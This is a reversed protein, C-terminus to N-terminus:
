VILRPDCVCKGRFGPYIRGISGDECQCVSPGFVSTPTQVCFEKTYGSQICDSYSQFTEIITNRSSVFLILLFLFLMVVIKNYNKM